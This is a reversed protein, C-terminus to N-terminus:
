NKYAREQIKYYSINLGKASNVSDIYSMVIYSPIAFGLSESTSTVTKFSNIGIVAGYKNALPGGSNGENIAADTQIAVTNIGSSTFNRYPASVVGQTVSIGYGNANGIAVVAEGYYLKVADDSNFAESEPSTMNFFTVYKLNDITYGEKLKLIALDLNTDYAVIEVEFYVDSDAYNIKIERSTYTLNNYRDENELSIVHANTMLYGDSNIFFATGASTLADNVTRSSFGMFGGYSYTYSYKISATIEVTAPMVINSVVTAIDSSSISDYSSVTNVDLGYKANINYSVNETDNNKENNGNLREISCASMFSLTIVLVIVLVLKFCKKM